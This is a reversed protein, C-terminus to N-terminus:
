GRVWAAEIHADSQKLKPICQLQVQSISFRSPNCFYAIIGSPQDLVMDIIPYFCFVYGRAHRDFIPCGSTSPSVAYDRRNCGVLQYKSSHRHLPIDFAAKQPCMPYPKCYLSSSGLTKHMLGCVVAQDLCELLGKEIIALDM